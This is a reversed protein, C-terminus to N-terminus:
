AVIDELRRTLTERDFNGCPLQNANRAVAHVYTPYYKLDMTHKDMIATRQKKSVAIALADRAEDSFAGKAASHAHRPDYNEITKNSTLPLFYGANTEEAM